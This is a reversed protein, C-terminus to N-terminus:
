VGDRSPLPGFIDNILQDFSSPLTGDADAHERLFFLYTGWEERQAEESYSRERVVGELEQLTWRGVARPPRQAPAAPTPEPEPEREPEAAAAALEAEREALRRDLERVRGKLEQERRAAADDSASPRASAAALLEERHELDKERAALQGARQALARERKTVEDIRTRLRKEARPDAAIAGPPRGRALSGAAALGAVLGILGTILLNRGPTPSTQEAAHAPDLLTTSIDASTAFRQPVKQTLLVVAEADIQRARERSGAKVSVTLIGGKGSRASIHPASALHLTQAVNSEVLSSEALAEVGALIQGSAPRVQLRADARFRDPQLLTWIGGAALGALICGALTLWAKM